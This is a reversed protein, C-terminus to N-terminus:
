RHQQSDIRFFLYFIKDQFQRSYKFKFPPQFFVSPCIQFLSNFPQYMKQCRHFVPWGHLFSHKVVRSPIYSLMQWNREQGWCFAQWQFTYFCSISLRLGQEKLMVPDIALSKLTHRAETHLIPSNMGIALVVLNVDAQKMLM